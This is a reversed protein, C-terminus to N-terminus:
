RGRPDLKETAKLAAKAKPTLRATKSDDLPIRPTVGDRTAGPYKPEPFKGPNAEGCGSSVVSIAALLPLFVLFRRVNPRRESLFEGSTPFPFM